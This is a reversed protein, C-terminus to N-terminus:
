FIIINLNPLDRSAKLFFYGKSNSSLTQEDSWIQFKDEIDGGYTIIEIVDPTEGKIKGLVNIKNSTFIMTKKDNWFSEKEVVKGIIAVDSEQTKRELFDYDFQADLSVITVLTVLVLLLLKKM